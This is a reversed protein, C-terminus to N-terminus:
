SMWIKTQEDRDHIYIRRDEEVQTKTETVNIDIIQKIAPTVIEIYDGSQKVIANKATLKLKM